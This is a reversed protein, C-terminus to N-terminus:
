DKPLNYKSIMQTIYKVNEFLSKAVQKPSKGESLMKNVIKAQKPLPPELIVKKKVEKESKFHSRIKLEPKELVDKKNQAIWAKKYQDELRIRHEDSAYVTGKAKALLGM